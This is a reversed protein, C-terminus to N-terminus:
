YKYVIECIEPNGSIAIKKVDAAPAFSYYLSTAEGIALEEGTASLQKVTVGNASRMLITCEKVGDPLIITAEETPTYTTEFNKDFVNETGNAGSLDATLDFKDMKMGVASATNNIYRIYRCPAPTTSWKEGDQSYEATLPANFQTEINTITAIYPLEIGVYEGPNLTIVELVRKVVIQDKFTTVRNNVLREVNTYISADRKVPNVEFSRVAVWNQRESADNRALRVYRAQVPTGEWIVDYVGNIEDRLLQWNEGDLSYELRAMDFYDVDNPVNRGQNIIITKVDTVEGLDM